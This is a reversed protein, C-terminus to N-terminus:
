GHLLPTKMPSWSHDTYVQHYRGLLAKQTYYREARQRGALGMERLLSPNTIM